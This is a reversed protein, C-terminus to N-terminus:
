GSVTSLVMEELGLDNLGKVQEDTLIQLLYDSMCRFDSARMVILDEGNSFRALNDLAKEDEDSILVPM